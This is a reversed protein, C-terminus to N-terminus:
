SPEELDALLDEITTVLDHFETEFLHKNKEWEEIIDKFLDYSIALTLHGNILELRGGKTIFDPLKLFVKDNNLIEQYIEFDSHTNSIPLKISM